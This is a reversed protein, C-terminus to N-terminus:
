TIEGKDNALGLKQAITELLEDQEPKSMKAVRKGKHKEKAAQVKKEREAAAVKEPPREGSKEIM